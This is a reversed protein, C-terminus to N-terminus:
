TTPDDCTVVLRTCKLRGLAVDELARALQASPTWKGGQAVFRSSADVVKPQEGPDVFALALASAALAAQQKLFADAVLHGQADFAVLAFTAWVVRIPKRHELLLVLSAMRVRQSAMGLLRHRAPNRLMRDFEINELRCITDDATLLYKRLSYGM